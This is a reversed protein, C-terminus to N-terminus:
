SDRVPDSGLRVVAHEPQQDIASNAQAYARRAVSSNSEFGIESFKGVQSDRKHDVGVIRGHHRRCQLFLQGDSLRNVSEVTSGQHAGRPLVANGEADRAIAKGWSNVVNGESDFEIVPPAPQSNKQEDPTLNDRNVVFVHDHADICTGGVEGTIWLEPFPKPWLPDIEFKPVDPGQPPGAKAGRVFPSSLGLLTGFVAAIVASYLHKSSKM